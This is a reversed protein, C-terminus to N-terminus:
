KLILRALYHDNEDEFILQFYYGCKDAVDELTAQDIYLWNFWEGVKGKYEYRYSLEGFYKGEPRPIDDYLYTIDSSDLLIQGDPNLIKKVHELFVELRQITGVLGIGNMLLLLTDFKEKDFAFIDERIISKIGRDNMIQIAVESIELATVEFGRNQLIETHMGVGAGIDLVHGECIDMACFELDPMDEHERFFVEVPMEEPAGYSNHLLLPAETKQYYFDSLVIDFVEM